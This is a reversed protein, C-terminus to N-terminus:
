YTRRYRLGLHYIRPLWNRHIHSRNVLRWKDQKEKEYNAEMNSDGDERHVITCVITVIYRMSRVCAFSWLLSLGVYQRNSFLKILHESNHVRTRQVWVCTCWDLYVPIHNVLASGNSCWILDYAVISHANM